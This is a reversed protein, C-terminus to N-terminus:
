VFSSITAKSRAPSASSPPPRATPSPCSRAISRLFIPTPQATGGTPLTVDLQKSGPVCISACVLWDAKAKLTVDGPPLQAPPTIETLLVVEDSYGYNEIDGGSVIKEPVPWQIPGAQFGEPLQWKIKTPLGADGSYQWYTHWHPAMQLRLGVTFPKGPTIATTDALLSAQVLEVGDVTQASAGRPLIACALFAFALCFRRAASM